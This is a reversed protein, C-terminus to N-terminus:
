ASGISSNLESIALRLDQGANEIIQKASNPAGAGLAILIALKVSGESRSLYVSAQETTCNTIDSVIRTARDILKINDACLNVMYGDYVHGLRIGMLTSM